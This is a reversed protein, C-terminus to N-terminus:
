LYVLHETPVCTIPCKEREVSLVPGSHPAQMISAANMRLGGPPSLASTLPSQNKVLFGDTNYKLAHHGLEMKEESM